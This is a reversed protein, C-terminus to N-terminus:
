KHERLYQAAKDLANESEGLLGIAQNCRNCLLGRVKGTSHCHDIHTNNAHLKRECIKCKSKQMKKIEYFQKETVGYEKYIRKWKKEQKRKERIIRDCEVCNNTGIFKEYHGKPCPKDPTYTTYGNLSSEEARKQNEKSRKPSKGRWNELSAGRKETICEVCNGSSAYRLSLHGKSCRWGTFYYIHGNERARKGSDFYASYEPHYESKKAM